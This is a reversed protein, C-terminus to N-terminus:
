NKKKASSKENQTPVSNIEELLSSKIQNLSEQGM